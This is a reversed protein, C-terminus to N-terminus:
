VLRFFDEWFHIPAVGLTPYTMLIEFCTIEECLEIASESVYIMLPTDLIVPIRFVPEISFSTIRSIIIM